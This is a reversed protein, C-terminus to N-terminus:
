SQYNLLLIKSSTQLWCPEVDKRERCMHLALTSQNQQVKTWEWIIPLIFAVSVVYVVEIPSFVHQKQQMYGGGHSPFSVHLLFLM